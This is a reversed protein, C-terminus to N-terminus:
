GATLHHAQRLGKPPSSGGPCLGTVHSFHMLVPVVASMQCPSMSIRAVIKTNDSSNHFSGEYLNTALCYFGYTRRHQKDQTIRM